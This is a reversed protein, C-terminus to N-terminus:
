NLRLIKPLKRQPEARFHGDPGMAYSQDLVLISDPKTASTVAATWEPSFMRSFPEPAIHVLNHMGLLMALVGLVRTPTRIVGGSRFLVRVLVVALTAGAADLAMSVRPDEGILGEGLYRFRLYRMAFVLVAGLLFAGTMTFPLRALQVAVSQEAQRRERVKRRPKAETKGAAEEAIGVYVQGSTNPGGARIRQLREEFTARQRTASVTGAM